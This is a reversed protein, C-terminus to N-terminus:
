VGVTASLFYHDSPFRGNESTTVIEADRVAVAGRAFIWDIKGQDGTYAPGLFRHHTPMPDEVRHVSGYTDIWGGAKFLDVTPNSAECNMDGALLQPFDDAYAAADECIIRAQNERAAQSVHDLHTNVVRFAKGGDRERLRV